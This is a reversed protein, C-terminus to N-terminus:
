HGTAASRGMQLPAEVDLGGKEGAGVRHGDGALLDEPRHHHRDGEVVLVLGHRDAVVAVEAEVVVDEGAVGGPSETDGFSQTRPVDADVRGLAVVLRRKASELHRTDAAVAAVVAQLRVGLQLGDHPGTSDGTAGAGGPQFFLAILLYSRAMMPPMTTSPLPSALRRPSMATLSPRMALMPNTARSSASCTISASPNCTAGPMM